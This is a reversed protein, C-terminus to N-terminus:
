KQHPQSFIFWLYMHLSDSGMQEDQLCIMQSTTM